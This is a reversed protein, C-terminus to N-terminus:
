CDSTAPTAGPSVHDRLKRLLSELTARETKTLAAGVSAEIDKIHPGVAATIRSLGAASLVAFSGRRDTPCSERRVLGEEELRDIARTLGSPTLTAQLALDSMRLRHEPTRALRVLIEFWQASLGSEELLRRELTRGLGSSSELLLGVLTLRDDDFANAAV